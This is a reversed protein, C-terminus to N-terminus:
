KVVYAEPRMGAPGTPSPIKYEMQKKSWFAIRANSVGLTKYMDTAVFMVIIYPIGEAFYLSPIWSWPSKQKSSMLFQNLRILITKGFNYKIGNVTPCLLEFM